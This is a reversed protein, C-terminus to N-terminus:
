TTTCDTSLWWQFFTVIEDLYVTWVLTFIRLGIVFNSFTHIVHNRIQKVIWAQLRHWFICVYRLLFIRRSTCLHISFSHLSLIKIHMLLSVSSLWQACVISIRKSPANSKRVVANERSFGSSQRVVAQHSSSLQM